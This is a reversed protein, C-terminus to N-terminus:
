FTQAFLMFSYTENKEVKGWSAKQLVVNWVCSHGPCFRCRDSPSKSWTEQRSNKMNSWPIDEDTVGPTHRPKYKFIQDSYIPSAAILVGCTWELFYQSEALLFGFSIAFLVRFKSAPFPFQHRGHLWSLFSRMPRSCLFVRVYKSSM